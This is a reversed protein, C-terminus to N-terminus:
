FMTRMETSCSNTVNSAVHTRYAAEGVCHRLFEYVVVYSSRVCFAVGRGLLEHTGSDWAGSRGLSDWLTGFYGLAQWLTGSRRLAGWPTGFRGLADWLKGSRGLADWLTGSRRLADWLKGSRGLADWLTGSGGSAGPLREARAFM